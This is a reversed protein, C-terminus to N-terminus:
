RRGQSALRLDPGPLESRRAQGLPIRSRERPRDEELSRRVRDHRRLTRFDPAKDHDKESAAFRAKINLTLPKISGTYGNESATFTGIIAM